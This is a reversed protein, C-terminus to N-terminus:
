PGALFGHYRGLWYPWLWFAPCQETTGGDGGSAQYPNSDWKILQRELPSLLRDTQIDDAVPKHVLRVDQRRTNDISWNVLDLPVERLLTVCEDQKIAEGSEGMLSGYEFNYYPSAEEKVTEFWIKASKRYLDLRDEDKEYNLLARYAMALLEDDIHTYGGPDSPRPDLINNAYAHERLLKDIEQDYKDDGTMHRTATLFSLIEVSNVGREPRWNPDGNLKEPSWVGWRTAQGDIDRFTYGGDIISDMVRRALAAVRKKEGDDAVLDHYVGWAYFHGIVEDSSTDGKWLWKKDASPRWRVEVFKERPDEALMEAMQIPTYTRNPDAMATWDAPVVTRAIFGSTGTVTQLFELAHFADEANKKAQPDKTVAYRYAEAVLYTGTYEGDNDTDAPAWTSLDGPTRLWCKEVLGPPRVHRARVVSEFYAAKQELTMPKRRIASVGASTAAWISKDPDVAVDRVDDSPLWRLSHLLWWGRRVIPPTPGNTVIGSSTAYEYSEKTIETSIRAIGLIDPSPLALAPEFGSPFLSSAGDSHGGLADLWFLRTFIGDDSLGFVDTGGNTAVIFTSGGGEPICRVQSSTIEDAKWVRATVGNLRMYLGTDAAVTVRGGLIAVDRICGPWDGEIKKWAGHIWEFVGHRNGAHFRGEDTCVATVPGDLTGVRELKGERVEYVGDWAGIWVSGDATSKIDYAPGDLAVGACKQFCGDVIRRVGAASVVWVGGDKAVAIARSDNEEPTGQVFPDRYLQDFPTDAIPESRAPNACCLSAIVVLLVRSFAFRPMLKVGVILGVFKRWQGEYESM